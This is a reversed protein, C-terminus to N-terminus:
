AHENLTSIDSQLKRIKKKLAVADKSLKLMEEKQKLDNLESQKQRLKAQSVASSIGLDLFSSGFATRWAISLIFFGGIIASIQMTMDYIWLPMKMLLIDFGAHDNDKLPLKTILAPTQSMMVIASVIAISGFFIALMADRRHQQDATTRLSIFGATVSLAASLGLIWISWNKIEQLAELPFHFDTV